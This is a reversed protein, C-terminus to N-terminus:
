RFRHMEFPSSRVRRVPAARFADVVHRLCLPNGLDEGLRDRQGDLSSVSVPRVAGQFGFPYVFDLGLVSDMAM